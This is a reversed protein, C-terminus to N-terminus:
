PKIEVIVEALEGKDDRWTCTKDPPHYIICAVHASPGLENLAATVAWGITPHPARTVPLLLFRKM